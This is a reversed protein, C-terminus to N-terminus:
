VYLNKYEYIMKRLSYNQQIIKRSLIGKKMLIKKNKAIYKICSAIAFYDYIPFVWGSKGILHSADGVDTCICPIGVAMCEIISIPSCEKISTLINIDFSNIVKNVEFSKGHLIIEENLGYKKIKSKLKYNNRSLGPGIFICKFDVNQNKLIELAKLLTEHDKLPHYRAINGLFLTDKSINFKDRFYKRLKKTPKFKNLCVGNNITISKRKIFGNYQHNFKSIESGYIIKDPLFYSLIILLKLEIFVFFSSYEFDHHITWILKKVGSIKAAIGGVLNAHYLWTHVYKPRLKNILIILHIFKFLSLFNKKMNLAYLKYGKDKLKSGYFGIDTLSIIVIDEKNITKAINFLINEAGGSNIDPSIFVIDNNYKNKAGFFNFM